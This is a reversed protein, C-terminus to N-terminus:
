DLVLVALHAHAQERRVHGLSLWRTYGREVGDRRLPNDAPCKMTLTCHSALLPPDTGWSVLVRGVRQCLSWCAVLLRGVLTVVRIHVRETQRDRESARETDINCRVCRDYWQDAQLANGINRWRVLDASVSHSWGNGGAPSHAYQHFLHFM